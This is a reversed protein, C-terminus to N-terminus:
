EIDVLTLQRRELNSFVETEQYWNELYKYDKNTNELRRLKLKNNQM